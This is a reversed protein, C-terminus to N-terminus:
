RRELLVKEILVCRVGCVSVNTASEVTVYTSRLVKMLMIKGSARTAREYLWGEM